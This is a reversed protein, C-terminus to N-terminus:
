EASAKATPQLQQNYGHSFKVVCETKPSETLKAVIVASIVSTCLAYIAAVFWGTRVEARQHFYDIGKPGIYFYSDENDTPLLEVDGCRQFGRGQSYCQFLRAQNSPEPVIPGTFGIYGGQLFAVLGYFDRYDNKRRIMLSSIERIGAEQNENIYSLLDHDTRKM